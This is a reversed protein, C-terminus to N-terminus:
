PNVVNEPIEGRMVRVVNDITFQIIRLRAENTAGAIHPTLVINAGERAASVLPNGDPVPEQTFVDVGAGGIKGEKVAKALADEDVLGGRAVNVLIASSKMRGFEDDGMMLRTSDTLPLSLSVVDSTSLLDALERYEVHLEKEEEPTLRAREFYVVDAGLSRARTGVARGIRGLGVIGWKKGNLEGAVSMLESQAWDGAVLRQHAVTIRKMAVLALAITHEAVSVTNAGGINAVPIGRAKCAAIDIHEYGTSPQQIFRVNKMSSVMEATIPIGFSYDGVVFDADALERSLEESNKGEASVVSVDLKYKEAAEEFMGRIVFEPLPSLSLVRFM